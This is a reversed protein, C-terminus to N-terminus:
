CVGVSVAQQVTQLWRFGGRLMSMGTVGCADRHMGV